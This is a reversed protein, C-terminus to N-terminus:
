FLTPVTLVFSLPLSKKEKARAHFCIHGDKVPCVSHVLSSHGVKAKRIDPRILTGWEQLFMSTVKATNFHVNNSDTRDDLSVSWKGQSGTKM